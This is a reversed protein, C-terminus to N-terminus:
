DSGRQSSNLSKLVNNRLEKWPDKSVHDSVLREYDPWDHNLQVQAAIIRKKKVSPDFSGGHYHKVYVNPALGVRYGLNIARMSWDNEEGYGVKYKDENYPGVIQWAELKIAVCFGHTTPAEYTKALKNCSAALNIEEVSFQNENKQNPLPFSYITASNSFPTVAALSEDARLRSILLAAWNGFVETDSNLLIFDTKIKSIALNVSYIYGFNKSNRILKVRPQKAWDDLFNRTKLDTSCDDVLLIEYSNMGMSTRLAVLFDFGNFVPIIVTFNTPKSQNFRRMM